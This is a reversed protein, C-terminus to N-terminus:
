SFLRRRTATSIKPREVGTSNSNPCTSFAYPRSCFLPFFFGPVVACRSYEGNGTGLEGNEVFLLLGATRLVHLRKFELLSVCHCLFDDTVDLQLDLGTLGVGTRRDTRRQALAAEVD